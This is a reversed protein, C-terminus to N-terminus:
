QVRVGSAKAQTINLSSIGNELAYLVTFHLLYAGNLAVISSNKVSTELSLESKTRSFHERVAEWNHAGRSRKKSCPQGVERPSYNM